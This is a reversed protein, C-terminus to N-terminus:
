VVPEFDFGALWAAIAERTAGIVDFQEPILGIGGSRSLPRPIPEAATKIWVWDIEGNEGTEAILLDASREAKM